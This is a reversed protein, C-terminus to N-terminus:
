MRWRISSATLSIYVCPFGGSDEAKQVNHLLSVHGNKLMDRVKGDFERAQPTNRFLLANEQPNDQM